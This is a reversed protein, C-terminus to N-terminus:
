IITAKLANRCIRDGCCFMIPLGTATSTLLRNRLGDTWLVLLNMWWTVPNRGRCPTAAVLPFLLVLWLGTSAKM